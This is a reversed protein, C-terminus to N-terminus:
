SDPKHEHPPNPVIQHPAKEDLKQRVKVAEEHLKLLEQLHEASTQLMDRIHNIESPKHPREPDQLIELCTKLNATVREIADNWLKFVIDGFKHETTDSTNNEIDKHDESHNNM